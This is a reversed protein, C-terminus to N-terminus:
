LKMYAINYQIIFVLFIKFTWIGLLLLCWKKGDSLMAPDSGFQM